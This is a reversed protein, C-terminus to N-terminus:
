GGFQARAKAVHGEKIIPLGLEVARSIRETALEILSGSTSSSVGFVARLTSRARTGPGTLLGEVTGVQLLDNIVGQSASSLAGWEDEDIINYIRAQDLRELWRSASIQNLNAAASAASMVAYGVTLPDNDLENWLTQYAFAM